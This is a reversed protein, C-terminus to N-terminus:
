CKVPIIKLAQDIDELRWKLAPLRRMLLIRPANAAPKEPVKEMRKHLDELKRGTDHINCLVRMPEKKVPTKKGAKKLQKKVYDFQKSTTQLEKFSLTKLAKRIVPDYVAKVSTDKKQLEEVTALNDHVEKRLAKLQKAYEKQLQMYDTIKKEVIQYVALALGAGAFITEIM